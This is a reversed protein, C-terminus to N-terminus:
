KKSMIELIVDFNDDKAIINKRISNCKNCRYIVKFTDKHKEVDIPILEGKCDSL